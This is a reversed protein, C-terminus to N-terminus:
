TRPKMTALILQTRAHNGAATPHLLDPSLLKPYSAMVLTPWPVTTINHYRAAGWKIEEGVRRTGQIYKWQPASGHPSYNFVHVWYGHRTPGLLKMASTIQTQMWGPPNLTDNSGLAMVVSTTPRVMGLAFYLSLRYVGEATQRGGSTDICVPRGAAAFQATIDDFGLATISDGIFLVGNPNALAAQCQVYPTQLVPSAAAFAAPALTVTAAAFLAAIVMTVFHPKPVRM